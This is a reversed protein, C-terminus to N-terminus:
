GARGWQRPGLHDRNAWTSSCVVGRGDTREAYTFSGVHGGKTGLFAFWTEHCPRVAILVCLPGPVRM